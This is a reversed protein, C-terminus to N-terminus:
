RGPTVVGVRRRRAEDLLAGPRAPAIRLGEVEVLDVARRGQRPSVPLPERLDLQLALGVTGRTLDFVGPPPDGAAVGLAAVSSRPFLVAEGLTQLDHLVVGAPVFVVWRRALGHIARVAAPTGIASVAVLVGGLVWQECALLLAAAVPGGVGVLWVLPIPGLLLTTPTRLLMRREDGYSSGDAFSEAVEPWLISLLALAAWGVAVTAGVGGDGQLAAWLAVPLVAPVLLRLATLSVTRPIIAALLGGAWAAWAVGSATRAVAFSREDLAAGLVPAVTAPLAAWAIRVPWPGPTAAM